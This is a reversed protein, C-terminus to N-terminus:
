PLPDEFPNALPEPQQRQVTTPEAPSAELSPIGLDAVLEAPVPSDDPRVVIRQMSVGVVVIATGPDIAMGESVADYSRGEIQVAGAPLMMSKAQGKRGVLASLGRYAETEPLVEEPHEPRQILILRGIPTHPWYKVALFCATPVIISVAILMGTGEAPGKLFALVIAAVLCLGALVGLTGSSPIFFELVLFVCGLVLLLLAWGLFSM